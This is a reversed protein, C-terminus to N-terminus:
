SIVGTYSLEHRGPLAFHTPHSCGTYPRSWRRGGHRYLRCSPCPMSWGTSPILTVSSAPFRAPCSSYEPNWHGLGSRCNTALSAGGVDCPGTMRGPLRNQCGDATLYTACSERLRTRWMTSSPCSYTRYAPLPKGALPVSSAACRTGSNSELLSPKVYVPAM